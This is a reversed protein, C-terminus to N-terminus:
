YEDGYMLNIKDVVQVEKAEFITLPQGGIVVDLKLFTYSENEVVELSRTEIFFTDRQVEQVHRVIMDELFEYKRNGEKLHFILGDQRQKEIRQAFFIDSALETKFQNYEMQQQGYESFANLQKNLQVYIAYVMGMVLSSVIMTVLLEQVTFAKQLSREKPYSWMNM